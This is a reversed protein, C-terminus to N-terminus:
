ITVTSTASATPSASPQPTREDVRTATATTSSGSGTVLADVSVTDGVALDAATAEKRGNSYRTSANLVYTRSYDDASLVTLSSGPTVATVTGYQQARTQFGTGNRVVSESHVVGGNAPAAGHGRGGGHALAAGGGAILTVCTLGAVLSASRRGLLATTM